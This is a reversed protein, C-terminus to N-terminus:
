AAEGITKGSEPVAHAISARIIQEENIAEGQLLATVHGDSLVAVRDALHVLEQIDTSFFLLAYGEGALKRMLQFIEGKTGVDVGRTLDYLLLVRANTLLLKAIVLKQQNGGSLSAAPQEPTTLVVNLSRVAEAVLHREAALDLLGFRSFRRAVALTVNERVSKPLLLGQNQRDEPVLALGIGARLAHRPSSIRVSKGGLEIRGRPHLVGFLSLFLELQGQGQLGGVGLIEGEHLDLNIGRLRHGLELGRVSLAVRKSATAQKDPYLRELRRGLMMSVVEDETAEKADRTGVSRGNRFVTIRDAVEKVEALRHSIYIVLMGQEALRRALGLLWRVERPSLASTAEDLILVRPDSAVAKAVEVLQREAVSLGRVEREPDIPPFDLRALLERTRRRLARRSITGAPTLRERRFWINESVSLDPVLSLEQFVAAVGARGAQRPNRVEFREGFLRIEGEDPHLAGTLIKIFTSKGAGNEGILAHVEGADATFEVSDLAVVGGFRKTVRVARLDAV